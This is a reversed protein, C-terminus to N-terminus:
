DSNILIARFDNVNTRTPGTLVLGGNKEFFGYSDNAALFASADLGKARSETLSAPSIWAGANDESGDIGDTDCALAWIGPASNLALMLSLLYESNPGGRGNGKLTVTLEGGSLFVCPVERAALATRAHAEAVKRAEGEAAVEVLIPTVGAAEAYRMAADLADKASAIITNTVHEFRPDSPKPTESDPGSLYGVVNQPIEIGFRDLIALADAGSTPDPVTPGSAIVAPDDGAVDSILLGHVHAPAAALALRGGKIASLHKRVCNIEGINAGSALLARTLRQKETITIGGAPMSLLSSGGGSGLFLVLDDKRLGAVAALVRKAAEVGAEDPVPHAAEVVEIKECPVGHGYRTVVLGSLDGTWAEEVARAMAAAAKGAGVVVTKRRPPDPLYKPVCLSPNVAALAAGFMERLFKEPNL